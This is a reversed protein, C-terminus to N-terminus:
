AAEKAEEEEAEKEAEAELEARRRRRVVSAWNWIGERKPHVGFRACADAVYGLQAASYREPRQLARPALAQLVHNATARGDALASVRRRKADFLANKKEGETKEKETRRPVDGGDLWGEEYAREYACAVAVLEDPDFEAAHRRVPHSLERLARRTASRLRARSSASAEAEAGAEEEDDADERFGLSRAGPLEALAWAILALDEARVNARTWGDRSFEAVLAAAAEAARARNLLNSPTRVKELSANGAEAEAEAAAPPFSALAHLLRAVDRPSFDYPMHWGGGRAEPPRESHEVAGRDMPSSPPRLLDLFARSLSSKALSGLVQSATRPFVRRRLRSVAPPLRASTEEAEEEREDDSQDDDVDDDDGSLRRILPAFPGDDRVCADLFRAPADPPLRSFRESRELALLLDSTEGATLERARATIHRLLDSDTVDHTGADEGEVTADPVPVLSRRLVADVADNLSTGPRVPPPTHTLRRSPARSARPAM